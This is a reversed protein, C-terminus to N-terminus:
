AVWAAIGLYCEMARIGFTLFTLLNFAVAIGVVIQLHLYMAAILSV